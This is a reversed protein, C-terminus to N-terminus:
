YKMKSINITMTQFSFLKLFSYIFHMPSQIPINKSNYYFFFSLKMNFIIYVSICIYSKCFYEIKCLFEELEFIRIEILSQLFNIFIYATCLLNFLKKKRFIKNLSHFIFELIKLM